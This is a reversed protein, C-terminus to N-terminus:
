EAPLDGPEDVDLLTRREPDLPTWLAEDVPDVRLARLLARLSREGTSLLEEATVAAPEVRVAAPLPRLREGDSLGVAGAGVAILRDVMARLVSSVLEPMDGGAVIAIPSRAAALGALVGALPGSGEVADRAIRVREPVLGADDSPSLVVVVDDAVTSIRDIAHHLVPEGRYIAALKDSGFRSSRGGALM